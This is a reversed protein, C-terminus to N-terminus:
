HHTYLGLCLSEGEKSDDRDEKRGTLMRKSYFIRL